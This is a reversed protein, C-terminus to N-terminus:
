GNGAGDAPAAPGTESATFAVVPAAPSPVVAALTLAAPGIADLAPDVLIVRRRALSEPTALTLMRKPCPGLCGTELVRVKGAGKGAAADRAGPRFARKVARGLQKRDVGQRKACKRCVLVLDTFGANATKVKTTEVRASEVRDSEVEDERAAGGPDQRRGM